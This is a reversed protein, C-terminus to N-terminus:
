RHTQSLGVGEAGPPAIHVRVPKGDVAIRDGFSIRQGTHAAEGNVTIRGEVIMQEMDRRSGVGSQALVKHLKPADPEPLLVRKAPVDVAADAETETDFDGSLVQAFVEGVDAPPASPVQPLAAEDADQVAPNIGDDDDDDDNADGGALAQAETSGARDAGRRGRRRNRGRRGGAPRGDVGVGPAGSEPEGTGRDQAPESSSAMGAATPAADSHGADVLGAPEAPAQAGPAEASSPKTARASPLPAAAPAPREDAVTASQAQPEGESPAKHPARRRKPKEAGGAADAEAGDPMAPLQPTPDADHVNM